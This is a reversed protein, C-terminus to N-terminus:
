KKTNCIAPSEFAVKNIVEGQGRPTDKPYVDVVASVAIGCKTVGVISYQGPTNGFNFVISNAPMEISRSPIGSGSVFSDEGNVVFTVSGNTPASLHFVGYNAQEATIKNLVYMKNQIDAAEIKQTQAHALTSAFVALMSVIVFSKKFHM